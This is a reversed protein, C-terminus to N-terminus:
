SIVQKARNVKDLPIEISKQSTKIRIEQDAVSELIGEMESKGELAVEFFIRLERGVARRFDAATRLPRDLGPSSVDMTYRFDLPASDQELFASLERNLAACEDLTIGGQARDALVELILAGIQNKYFRLDVLVYGGRELCAELKPKIKLLIDERM